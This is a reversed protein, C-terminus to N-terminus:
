GNLIINAFLQYYTYPLFRGHLSVVGNLLFHPQFPPIPPITPSLPPTSPCDQGGGQGGESSADAGGVGRGDDVDDGDADTENARGGATANAPVSSNAGNWHSANAPVSSNATTPHTAVLITCSFPPHRCLLLVAYACYSLVRLIWYGINTWYVNCACGKCM